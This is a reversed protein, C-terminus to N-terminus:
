ESTVEADQPCIAISSSPLARLQSIASDKESPSLEHAFREESHKADVTHFTSYQLMRGVTAAVPLNEM